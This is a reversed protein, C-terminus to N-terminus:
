VGAKAYSRAGFPTNANRVASRYTPPQPTAFRAAQPAYNGSNGDTDESKLTALTSSGSWQGTKEKLDLLKERALKLKDNYEQLRKETRRLAAYEISNELDVQVNSLDRLRKQTRRLDSKLRMRDVLLTQRQSRIKHKNSSVYNLRSNPEGSPWYKSENEERKKLKDLETDILTIERTLNDKDKLLARERYTTDTPTPLRLRAMELDKEAEEVMQAYYSVSRELNPVRIVHTDPAQPKTEIQPLPRAPQPASAATKSLAETTDQTTFVLVIGVTVTALVVAITIVMKPFDAIFKTEATVLDGCRVCRLTKFIM